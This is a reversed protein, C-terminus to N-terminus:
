LTQRAKREVETKRDLRAQRGPSELSRPAAKLWAAFREWLNRRTMRDHTRKAQQFEYETM